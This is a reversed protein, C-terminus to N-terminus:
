DFFRMLVMLVFEVFGVGLLIILTRRGPKRIKFRGLFLAGIAPLAFFYLLSFDRTTLYNFLLILPFILAASTVPLGTFLKKGAEDTNAHEAELVNFYALRIMAALVYFLVALMYLVSYIKYLGFPGIFNIRRGGIDLLGVGIAGPLVGFAVLDSLSDIQVGFAKERETRGKKSRAVIGDFTDCLGSFLLFFSGLYPHGQGYTSVVIGCVASLLSMYTLIVTYDYVGIM